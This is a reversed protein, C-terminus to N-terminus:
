EIQELDLEPLSLGCADEGYGSAFRICMFSFFQLPKVVVRLQFPRNVCRAINLKLSASLFNFGLDLGYHHDVPELSRGVWAASPKIKQHKTSSVRYEANETGERCVIVIKDSIQGALGNM